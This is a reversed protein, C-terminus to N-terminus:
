IKLIIWVGTFVFIGILWIYLVWKYQRSRVSTFGGGALVFLLGLIPIRHRYPDSGVMVGMTAVVLAILAIVGCAVVAGKRRETWFGIMGFPFLFYWVLTNTVALITGFNNSFLFQLPPPSFLGRLFLIVLNTMSLPNQANVFQMITAKSGTFRQIFYSGPLLRQIVMQSLPQIVFSSVFFAFLVIALIIKLCSRLRLLDKIRWSEGLIFYLIVGTVAIAAWPVGRLWYLLSVSTGVGLIKGVSYQRPVILFWLTLVYLLATAIEKLNVASYLVLPPLFATFWFARWAAKPDNFFRQGLDYAFFPLL